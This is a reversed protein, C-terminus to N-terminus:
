RPLYAIQTVPQNLLARHCTTSDLRTSMVPTPLPGDQPSQRCSASAVAERATIGALDLEGPM